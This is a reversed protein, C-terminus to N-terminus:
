GQVLGNGVGRGLGCWGNGVRRGWSAGAMEWGEGWMGKGKGQMLGKEKDGVRVWCVFLCVRKGREGGEKWTGFRRRVRGGVRVLWEGRTRRWGM